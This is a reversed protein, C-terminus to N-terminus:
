YNMKDLTSNNNEIELEAVDMERVVREVGVPKSLSFNRGLGNTSIRKRRVRRRRQRRRRPDIVLCKKATVSTEVGGPYIVVLKQRQNDTMETHKWLNPGTQRLQVFADSQKNKSKVVTVQSHQEILGGIDEPM